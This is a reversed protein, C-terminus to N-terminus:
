PKAGARPQEILPRFPKEEVIHLFIQAGNGYTDVAMFVNGNNRTFRGVLSGAENYKLTEGGLSDLVSKYSRTVELASASPESGDPQYNIVIVHGEVTMQRDALAFTYHDFRKEEYGDIKYGEIHGITPYDHPTDAGAASRPSAMTLAFAVSALIRLFMHDVRGASFGSSESIM